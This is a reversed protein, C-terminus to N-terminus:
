WTRCLELMENTLTEYVDGARWRTREFGLVINYLNNGSNTKQFSSLYVLVLATDMGMRLM